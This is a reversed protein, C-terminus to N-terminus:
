ENVPKSQQSSSRSRIKYSGPRLYGAVELLIERQGLKGAWKMLRKMERTHPQSAFVGALRELGEQLYEGKKTAQGLALYHYALQRDALDRVMFHERANEFYSRQTRADRTRVGKALLRDGVMGDAMYVLGVLSCVAIVAGLARFVAPRNIRTWPAEQLLLERNALAFALAMWLANEIRHFPRTWVADFWFLFLMAIGWLAMLSLDKKRVLARVFATLWWLALGLLVVGGFIGTECFWQLIENHAWLTFKWDKDPFEKFMEKQAELYNWKFHGLGVGTVPHMRFMTWATAWISDRKGVTEVHEVMDVAKAVLNGGRGHMQAAGFTAMLILLVAGFRRLSRRGNLRVLALLLFVTAVFYSLYGSRSTTNWLGWSNVAILLLNLGTLIRAKKGEGPAASATVHMFTGNLLAMAVWLGLMNQQGTNGIYHGPTPLIFPFAGNLSRIQLEAFVVNIAACLSAGWLFPRLWEQRFGLRGFAYVAWLSAFFFWERIFTPISKVPVWFPQLTLFLLLFLWIAGFPDLRFATVQNRFSFMRFGGTLGVLALPALAVVWKLLHLTQFWYRGSFVLNPFVLSVYLCLLLMLPPVAEPPQLARTPEKARKRAM